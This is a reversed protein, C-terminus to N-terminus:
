RSPTWSTKPPCCGAVAGARAATTRPRASASGLASVAGLRACHGDHLAGRRIETEVWVKVHEKEVAGIVLLAVREHPLLKAVELGPLHATHEFPREPAHRPVKAAVAREFGGAVRVFALGLVRVCGGVGGLLPESRGGHRPLRGGGSRM